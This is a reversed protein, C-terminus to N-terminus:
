APGYSKARQTRDGKAIKQGESNFKQIQGGQALKMLTQSVSPKSKSGTAKVIEDASLPRGSSQLAELISSTLKGKPGRRGPTRGGAASNSHTATRITDTFRAVRAHISESLGRATKKLQSLKSELDQIQQEAAEFATWLASTSKQVRKGKKAMVKRKEGRVGRELM